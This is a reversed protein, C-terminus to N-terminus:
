RVFYGTVRWVGNELVATVTETGAAKNAFGADFQVVVYEGDPVGPLSTTYRSAIKRRTHLEGLPKRANSAASQWQQPSVQDKFAAAAASWSTVYEGADVYSLWELVAAEAAEEKTQAWAFSAVAMSVLFTALTRKM